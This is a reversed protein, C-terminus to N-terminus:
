QEDCMRREARLMFGWLEDQVVGDPAALAWERLWELVRCEDARECWSM